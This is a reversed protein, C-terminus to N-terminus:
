LINGVRPTITITSACCKHMCIRPMSFCPECVTVMSYAPQKVSSALRASNIRIIPRQAQRCLPREQPISGSTFLARCLASIPARSQFCYLPASYCSIISGRREKLSLYPPLIISYFIAPSAINAKRSHFVASNRTHQSAYMYRQLIDTM